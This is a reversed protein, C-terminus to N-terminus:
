QGPTTLANGSTITFSARRNRGWASEDHGPDQPQDEGMSVIELRSEDISFQVLYDKVVQARGMGLVLNYEISGREDTHGTIRLRVAPNARLIQVKEGLATQAAETLKDDDYEFYIATELTGRVLAMRRAAEAADAAARTAAAISDQRAQERRAADPDTTSTPTSSQPNDIPTVVPPKKKACATLAVTCVCTLVLARGLMTVEGPLSRNM